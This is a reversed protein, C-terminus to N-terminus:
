DRHTKKCMKSSAKYILNQVKEARRFKERLELHFIPFTKDFKKKSAIYTRMLKNRGLKSDEELSMLISLNIGGVMTQRLLKIEEKCRKYFKKKSESSNETRNDIMDYDTNAHTLTIHRLIYEAYIRMVLVQPSDLVELITDMDSENILWEFAHGTCHPQVSHQLLSGGNNSRHNMDAGLDQLLQIQPVLDLAAAMMVATRDESDTVRLDRVLFTIMNMDTNHLAEHVPLLSSDSVDRIMMMMRQDLLLQLIPRSGISYISIPVFPFMRMSRVTADGRLLNEMLLHCTAKDYRKQQLCEICSDLISERLINHKNVNAGKKVLKYFLGLQNTYLALNAWRREVHINEMNAGNEILMLVIEDNRTQIPTALLYHDDDDYMNPNAGADLLKRVINVNEHLVAYYLACKGDYDQVDLDITYGLLKDVLTDLRNRVAGILLSESYRNDSLSLNPDLEMDLLYSFTMIDSWGIALRISECKTELVEINAGFNLLLRIIETQGKEVADFLPRGHDKAGYGLNLDAGCRLLMEVIEIQQSEIANMLFTFGYGDRADVDIGLYLNQIVESATKSRRAYRREMVLILRIRDTSVIIRHAVVDISNLVIWFSRTHNTQHVLESALRRDSSTFGSSCDRLRSVRDTQNRIM